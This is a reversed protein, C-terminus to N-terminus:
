SEDPLEVTETRRIRHIGRERDMLIRAAAKYLAEDAEPPDEIDMEATAHLGDDHLTVRIEVGRLDRSSEFPDLLVQRFADILVKHQYYPDESYRVPNPGHAFPSTVTVKVSM